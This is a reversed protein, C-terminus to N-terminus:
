FSSNRNRPIFGNGVPANHETRNGFSSRFDVMKELASVAKGGDGTEPLHANRNFIVSVDDTDVPLAEVAQFPRFINQVRSVASRRGPKHGSNEGSLGKVTDDVTIGRNLGPRHFPNHCRQGHHPSRNFAQFSIAACRQFDGTLGEVADM